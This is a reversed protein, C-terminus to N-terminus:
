RMRAQRSARWYRPRSSGARCASASSGTAPLGSAREGLYEKYLELAPRGDLEYLENGKSRTVIREPGVDAFRQGIESVFFRRIIAPLLQCVVEEIM